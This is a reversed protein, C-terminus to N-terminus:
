DVVEVFTRAPESGRGLAFDLTEEIKKGIQYTDVRDLDYVQQYKGGGTYELTITVENSM